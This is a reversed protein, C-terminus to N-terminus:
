NVLNDAKLSPIVYDHLMSGIMDKTTYSDVWLLEEIESSPIPEKDLEVFFCIMVVAKLNDTSPGVFTKYYRQSTVQCGIEESTERHLCQIDTEGPELKGGVAYFHSKGRTRAVLLQKNQIWLAAPKVIPRSRRRKGASMGVDEDFCDCCITGHDHHADDDIPLRCDTCEM